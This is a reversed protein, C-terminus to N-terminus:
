GPRTRGLCRSFLTIIRLDAHNNFLVLMTAIRPARFQLAALRLSRGNLFRKNTDSLCGFKKQFCQGIFFAQSGGVLDDEGCGDFNM